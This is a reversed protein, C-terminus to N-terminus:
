ESKKGTYMNLSSTFLNHLSLLVMNGAEANALPFVEWKGREGWEDKVAGAGRDTCSSSSSSM